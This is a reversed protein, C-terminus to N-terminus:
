EESYNVNIVEDYVEKLDKNYDEETYDLSDSLVERLRNGMHKMSIYSTGGSVIGGVIPVAKSVGKAFSAKTVKVGIITGIRKVIPYLTTKTLARRSTRKMVQVSIKSTLVRLASASKEVGLMVGLYIILERKIDEDLQSKNGIEGYGYLYVLEQALKIATALFQITDAPITAAMAIGGPIGAAFSAISTNETRKKILSKAIKDLKEVAIGATIPDTEIALNIINGDKIKSSLTQLLFQERDVKVGPIKLITDLMGEYKNSSENITVDVNVGGKIMVMNKDIVFNYFFYGSM